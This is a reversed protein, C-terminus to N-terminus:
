VHSGDPQAESHHSRRVFSRRFGHLYLGAPPEDYDLGEGSDSYHREPRLGAILRFSDLQEVREVVCDDCLSGHLALLVVHRLLHHCLGFDPEVAGCGCGVNSVIEIGLSVLCQILELM